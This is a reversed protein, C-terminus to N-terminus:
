PKPTDDFKALATRISVLRPAHPFRDGKIVARVAAIVAALEADTFDIRPVPEEIPPRCQGALHLQLGPIRLVM